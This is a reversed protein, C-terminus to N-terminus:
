SYYRYKASGDFLSFEKQRSKGIKNLERYGINDLAKLGEIAVDQMLYKQEFYIDYEDFLEDYDFGSMEKFFSHEENEAYICMLIIVAILFPYYYELGRKEIARNIQENIRHMAEKTVFAEFNNMMYKSDIEDIKEVIKRAIARVKKAQYGQLNSFKNELQLKILERALIIAGAEKYVRLKQKLKSKFDFMASM